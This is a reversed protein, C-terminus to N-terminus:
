HYCIPDFIKTMLPEPSQKDSIQHWAMVQVLTWKNYISGVPFYKLSVKDFIITYKKMITNHYMWPSVQQKCIYMYFICLTFFGRFINNKSVFLILLLLCQWTLLALSFVLCFYVRILLVIHVIMRIDVSMSDIFISCLLAHGISIYMVDLEVVGFDEFKIPHAGWSNGDSYIMMFEYQQMTSIMCFAMVLVLAYQLIHHKM